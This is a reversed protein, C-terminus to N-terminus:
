REGEQCFVPIDVTVGFVDGSKDWTFCCNMESATKACALLGIGSSKCRDAHIDVANAIVIRICSGAECVRISVPESKYAYKEINSFINDFICKLRVADVSIMRGEAIVNEIVFRFGNDSLLVTHEAVLQGILLAADYVETPVNKEPHAFVYFYEFLNNSLKRLQEANGIAIDLFRDREAEDTYEKEKILNLYGTLATLPNRIDHAMYTILDKNARWVEQERELRNIIERRMSDIDRGLEALEDKGSVTVPANIDRTEIQKVEKALKSIRTSIRGAYSLVILLFLVLSLLLAATKSLRLIFEESFDIITVTYSGDAFAVQMTDSPDLIYQYTPEGPVSTYVSDMAAHNQSYVPENAYVGFEYLIDMGDYVALYIHRRGRVWGSVDKTDSVKLKHEQVYERFEAFNEENRADIRDQSMYVSYVYKNSIQSLFFYILLSFLFSVVIVVFLRIRLSSVSFKKKLNIM